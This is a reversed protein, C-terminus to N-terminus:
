RRWRNAGREVVLSMGLEEEDSPALIPSYWFQAEVQAPTIELVGYGHLTLEVYRHHPNRQLTDSVIAEYVAASPLGLAEDFNGRSVSTPLFEVGRSRGPSGLPDYLNAPDAPEDVLDMGLSIHSDGTLVVNDGQGAEGLRALLRAREEPFGDWTKKDFVPSGDNVAPNVQVTALLKQNGLLRWTARPAELREELWAWQAEGLIRPPAASPDRHLLLDILFVEVLEGYRLARYAVRPDAPDPQRMPVWERFAQISGRDDEGSEVDHNDWMVAWPHAARAARLDPDWLYLGHRARWSALDTPEEPFPESLRIKEDEDVSDYLYDGLHIVLDLEEREAVRAYANFYGSFLSSCSLVAFRLREAAGEPATRTRGLASRAGGEDEFWYYYTTAPELGEVEVQATWDRAAEAQAEGQAVVEAGGPDRAVVWRLAADELGAPPDRRTWLLVGRATPDGSAVGHSFPACDPALGPATGAPVEGPRVRVQARGELAEGGPGTATLTVQLARERAVSPARFRLRPGLAGELALPGPAGEVQWRWGSAGSASGELVVEGCAGVEVSAVAGAGEPRPEWGPWRGWQTPSPTAVRQSPEKSLAGM